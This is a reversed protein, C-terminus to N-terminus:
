ATVDVASGPWNLEALWKPWPVADCHVNRMSVFDLLELVDGSIEAGQVLLEVRIKLPPPLLLKEIVGCVYRASLRAPLERGPAATVTLKLTRLAPCSLRVSPLRPTVQMDLQVVLELIEVSSTDVFSHRLTVGVGYCTIGVTLSKTGRLPVTWELGYRLVPVFIRQRHEADHTRVAMRTCPSAMHVMGVGVRRTQTEYFIDVHVAPSSFLATAMWDFANPDFFGTSSSLLIIKEIGSMDAAGILAYFAYADVCLQRVTRPLALTPLVVNKDPLVVLSEVSPFITDVHALLMSDVAAGRLEVMRAGPLAVFPSLLVDCTVADLLPAQLALPARLRLDPRSTLICLRKLRRAPQGLIAAFDGGYPDCLSVVLERVNDMWLAVLIGAEVIFRAGDHSSGLRIHEVDLLSRVDLCISHAAKLSHLHRLLVRLSSVDQTHAAGVVVHCRASALTWQRSVCAASVRDAVDLPYLFMGLVEPSVWPCAPRTTEDVGHLQRGPLFEADCQVRSLTFERSCSGDMRVELAQIAAKGASTYTIRLVSFRVASVAFLPLTAVPPTWHLVTYSPPYVSSM